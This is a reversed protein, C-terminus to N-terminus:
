FCSGHVKRMHAYVPGSTKAVFKCESCFHVDDNFPCHMHMCGSERQVYHGEEDVVGDPNKGCPCKFPPEM